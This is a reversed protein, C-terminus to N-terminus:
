EGFEMLLRIAHHDSRHQDDIRVYSGDILEPSGSAGSARFLIHDTPYAGHTAEGLPQPSDPFRERLRRLTTERDSWTNFDGGLVTSIPWGADARGAGARTLEALELADVLALAQRLRSGNGTTLVRTPPATSILHVSVLRLSDGDTSKVTAALAVRRSAEYPLEISIIDSLPLTSVIAVGKDERLGDVPEHGNRAAALYAISLGCRRAIEITDLREGPRGEEPILRPTAWDNTTEPVDPSRRFAEQILLAFHPSSASLESRSEACTLGLEAELFGAVDGNGVAANWAVIALSDGPSLAGFRGTPSPTHAQRGVTVCWEELRSNDASAAPFYWSSGAGQPCSRTPALDPTMRHSPMCATAGIAIGLLALRTLRLRSM